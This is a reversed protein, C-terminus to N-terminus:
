KKRIEAIVGLHDSVIDPIVKYSVFEFEKSLLIWDLRKKSFPFTIMNEATSDPQYASLNLKNALIQLASQKKWDCNFDGMIILPKSNVSLTEIMTEIQKQRITDRSFDLHVSVFQNELSNAFTLHALVFGKSFTPPSPKFTTSIASNLPYKSLFATGYSLKMGDVHAGRVSYSYGAKEALYAVHSFNGSWISPGDAEQLAVLDPRERKLMSAITDLNAKIQETSQLIQNAGDKRGHAINLTM